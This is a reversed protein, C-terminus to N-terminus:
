PAVKIKLRPKASRRRRAAFESRPKKAQATRILDICHTACPKYQGRKNDLRMVERQDKSVLVSRDQPEFAVCYQTEGDNFYFYSGLFLLTM